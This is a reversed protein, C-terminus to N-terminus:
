NTVTGLNSRVRSFDRTECWSGVSPVLIHGKEGYTLLKGGFPTDDGPVAADCERAKRLYEKTVQQQRRNM